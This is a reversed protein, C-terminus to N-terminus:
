KAKRQKLSAVMQANKEQVKTVMEAKYKHLREALVKDSGALIQTALIGANTAGYEGVALTGVPIGPPMQVMALLSDFGALPTSAIPVALVPLITHAAIVGGLHAAGGAAAIFVRIGRAEGGKALEAAADPTRHASCVTIEYPVQFKELVDLCKTMVPLDSDSGMVISVTPKSMVSM